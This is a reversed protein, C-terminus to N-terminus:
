PRLTPPSRVLGKLQWVSGLVSICVVAACVVMCVAVYQRLRVAVYQSCQREYQRVNGCQRVAACDMSLNM